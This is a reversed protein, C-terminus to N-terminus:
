REKRRGDPTVFITGKPLKRAEDPSSVRVAEGAAPPETTEPEDAGIVDLPNLEAREALDRYRTRLAKNSSRWASLMTGAQSIFDKRQEETLREGSLLNNYRARVKTPVGGANEANAFEGEKVSSGPDVMRMYATLLAIDGAASPKEGLAKITNYSTKVTGYDKSQLNYEDRLTNAHEFSKDQEGATEIPTAGPVVRPEGTRMNVQAMVKRGGIMVPEPKTWEDKEAVESEAIVKDGRMRKEGPKLTYEEAKAPSMGLDSMARAQIGTALEELEDEDIEDWTGYGQQELGSIVDAFNQEVFAKRQGKPVALVQQAGVLAKKGAIEDYKAQRDQKQMEFTEAERAEAAELAKMKREGQEEAQRLARGQLFSSVPQALIQQGAIDIAM